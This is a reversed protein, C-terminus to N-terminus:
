SASQVPYSYVTPYQMVTATVTVQHDISEHFELTTVPKNQLRKTGLHQRTQEACRYMSCQEECPFCVTRVTATICPTLEMPSEQFSNKLKNIVTDDENISSRAIQNRGTSNRATVPGRKNEGEACSHSCSNVQCPGSLSSLARM